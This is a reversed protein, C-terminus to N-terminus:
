LVVQSSCFIDTATGNPITTHGAALGQVPDWVDYEFFATQQGNPRTGYSMVRGDPLVVAHVPIIPWPTVGSWMGAVNANSPIPTTPTFVTAQKREGGDASRAPEPDGGGCSALLTLAAVASSLGLLHRRPSTKKKM